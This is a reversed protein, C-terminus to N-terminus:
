SLESTMRSGVNMAGVYMCSFILKRGAVNAFANKGCRIGKITRGCKVGPEPAYTPGDTDVVGAVIACPM